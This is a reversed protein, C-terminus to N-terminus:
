QMSFWEARVSGKRAHRDNRGRGGAVDGVAVIDSECQLSIVLM